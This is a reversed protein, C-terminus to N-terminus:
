GNKEAKFAGCKCGTIWIDCGCSTLTKSEKRLFLFDSRMRAKLSPDDGVVCFEIDINQSSGKNLIEIEKGDIEDWLRYKEIFSESTFNSLATRSGRFRGKFDVYYRGGVGVEDWKM